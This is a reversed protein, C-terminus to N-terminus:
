SKNMERLHRNERGVPRTHMFDLLETTSSTM